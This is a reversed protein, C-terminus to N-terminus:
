RERPRRRVGPRPQSSAEDRLFGILFNIASRYNGETSQDAVAASWGRVARTRLSAADPISLTADSFAENHMARLRDYLVGVNAATPGTLRIPENYFLRQASSRDGQKASIEEAVSEIMSVILLVSPNGLRPLENILPLLQDVFGLQNCDDIIIVVVKCGVKQAVRGIQEVVQKPHQLAGNIEDLFTTRLVHVSQGSPSYFYTRVFSDFENLDGLFEEFRQRYHGQSLRRHIRASADDLAQKIQAPAGDRLAEELKGYIGMSVIDLVGRSLITATRWYWPPRYLSDFEKAIQTALLSYTIEPEELQSRRLNAAIGASTQSSAQGLASIHSYLVEFRRTQSGPQGHGAVNEDSLFRTIKNALLTKGNGNEGIILRFNSPRSGKIMEEISTKLALFGQNILEGVEFRHFEDDPAIPSSELALFIDRARNPM